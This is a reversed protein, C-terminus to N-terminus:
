KLDALIKPFMLITNFFIKFYKLLNSKLPTLVNM